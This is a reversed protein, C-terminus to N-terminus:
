KKQRKLPEEKVIGFKGVLADYENKSLTIM